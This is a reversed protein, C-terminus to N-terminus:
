SNSVLYLVFSFLVFISFLLCNKYHNECVYKKMKLVHMRYCSINHIMANQGAATMKNMIFFFNMCFISVWLALCHTPKRGQAAGSFTASRLCHLIIWRHLLRCHMPRMCVVVVICHIHIIKITQVSKANKQTTWRQIHHIYVSLLFLLFLGFQTISCIWIKILTCYFISWTAIKQQLNNIAGVFKASVYITQTHKWFYM